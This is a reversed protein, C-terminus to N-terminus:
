YIDLADCLELSEIEEERLRHREYTVPCDICTCNAIPTVLRKIKRNSNALARIPSISKRARKEEQAYTASNEVCGNCTSCTRGLENARQQTIKLKEIANCAVSVGDSRCKLCIVVKSSGAARTKDGCIACIDSGFYSSIM